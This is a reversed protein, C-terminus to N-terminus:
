NVAPVRKLYAAVAERDANTLHSYNDVVHVMEGGVSDYDPTFGARLYYAIDKESWTLKDPSLGPFEGKGAPDPGGALWDSRQMGGMLNRPTHCEGCHGLGEVLYRGREEAATLDGTVVWDETVFLMKWGGLTIRLNFPFSLEHPISPTADPPLTMLYAYLDAVDQLSTNRYSAYPFAPYLHEGERGVGRLMANALDLAAWDGIGQERDPSVNPAYFTGFASTFKLGGKLIKAMEEDDIGPEKHCSACGSAHYVQEGRDVDGVLGAMANAPLPAPRTVVLYGAVGVAALVALSLLTKLM